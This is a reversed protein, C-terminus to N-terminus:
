DGCQSLNKYHEMIAAACGSSRSEGYECQCIIDFGEKKASYIFEALDEAEPFYTDYTLGYRPLVSLDIDHIAIQFVPNSKGSYDVPKYSDDRYIDKPDYFSIVAANQPFDSLLLKEIEKRSYIFVKMHTGDEYPQEAAARNFPQRESIRKVTEICSEKSQGEKKTKCYKRKCIRMGRIGSKRYEHKKWYSFCEECTCFFEWVPDFVFHTGEGWDVTRYIEIYYM